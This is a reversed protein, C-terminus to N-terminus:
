KRLELETINKYDISGTTLLSGHNCIFVEESTWINDAGRRGMRAFCLGQM